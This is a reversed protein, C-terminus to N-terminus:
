FSYGMAAGVMPLLHIEADPGFGYSSVHIYSLQGSFSWFLAGSEPQKRIGIKLSTIKILDDLAPYFIDFNGPYYHDPYDDMLRVYTIGTELFNKKKRSFYSIGMPIGRIIRGQFPLYTYGIRLGLNQDTSRLLLREYNASYFFAAGGAEAFFNNKALGQASSFGSQVFLLILLTLKIIRM